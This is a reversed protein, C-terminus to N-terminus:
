RYTTSKNYQLLPGCNVKKAVESSRTLMETASYYPTFSLYTTMFSIAFLLVAVLFIGHCLERNSCLDKECSYSKITVYWIYIYIVGQQLLSYSSTEWGYPSNPRTKFSMKRYIQFFM